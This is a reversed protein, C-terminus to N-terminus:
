LLNNGSCLFQPYRHIGSRDDMCHLSDQLVGTKRERGCRDREKEAKYLMVTMGETRGPEGSDEGKIGM